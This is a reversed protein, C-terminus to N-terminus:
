DPKDASRFGRWYPKEVRRVNEVGRLTAPKLPDEYTGDATFLAALADVDLQDWCRCIAVMAEDATM